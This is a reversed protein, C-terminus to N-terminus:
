QTQPNIRKQVSAIGRIWPKTDQLGAPLTELAAVAQNHNPYIGYLLVYWDKDHFTTKFMAFQHHSHQAIFQELTLSDHVGIIQLTYANPNQRRLWDERKVETQNDAPQSAQLTTNNAQTFERGM